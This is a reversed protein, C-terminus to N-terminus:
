FPKTPYINKWEKLGEEQSHIQGQTQLILKLKKKLIKLYNKIVEGKYGLAIYFEKHGFKSYIDM